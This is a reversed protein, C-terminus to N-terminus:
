HYLDSHYICAGILKSFVIVFLVVVAVVHFSIYTHVCIENLSHSLPPFWILMLHFLIGYLFLRLFSLIFFLISILLLNFMFVQMAVIHVTPLIVCHPQSTPFNSADM